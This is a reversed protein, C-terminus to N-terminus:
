MMDEAEELGSCDNEVTIADIVVDIKDTPFTILSTGSDVVAKCGTSGCVDLTKGGIRVEDLEIMWYYQDIVDYYEVEGEYKTRDTGGIHFESETNENRSL